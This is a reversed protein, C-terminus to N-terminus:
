GSILLQGERAHGDGDQRWQEEEQDELRLKM